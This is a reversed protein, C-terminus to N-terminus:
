TALFGSSEAEPGTFCYCVELSRKKNREKFNINATRQRLDHVKALPCGKVKEIM